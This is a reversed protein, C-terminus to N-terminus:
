ELKGIESNILEISKDMPAIGVSMAEWLTNYVDKSLRPSADESSFQVSDYYKDALYKIAGIFYYSESLYGLMGLNKIWQLEGGDSFARWMHDKLMSVIIGSETKLKDEDNVRISIERVNWMLEARLMSLIKEKREKETRREQYRSVWLAIPIGFILGILTAILQPWFQEWFM